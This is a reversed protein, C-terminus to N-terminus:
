LQVEVADAFCTPQEARKFEHTDINYLGPRGWVGGASVCDQKSVAGGQKVEGGPNQIFTKNFIPEGASVFSFPGVVSPTTDDQNRVFGISKSDYWSLATEDPAIENIGEGTEGGDGCGMGAILDPHKNVDVDIICLPVLEEMRMLDCKGANRVKFKVVESYDFHARVQADHMWGGYLYARDENYPEDKYIGELEDATPTSGNLHALEPLSANRVFLDFSELTGKAEEETYLTEEPLTGADVQAKVWDKTILQPLEDNACMHSMDYRPRYVKIRDWNQEVCRMADPDLCNEAVTGDHPYGNPYHPSYIRRKTRVRWRDTNGCSDLNKGWNYESVELFHVDERYNTPDGFNDAVPQNDGKMAKEVFAMHRRYRHGNTANDSTEDWIILDGPRAESLGAYIPIVEADPAAGNGLSERYDDGDRWEPDHAHQGTKDWLRAGADGPYTEWLIRGSEPVFAINADADMQMRLGFHPGADGRWRLPFFETIDEVGWGVSKNDGNEDKTYSYSLYKSNFLTGAQKMGWSEDSGVIFTKDYDCMCNLGFWKICRAQYTMMEYWGGIDCGRPGVIATQARPNIFDDPDPAGLTFNPLEPQIFARRIAEKSKEFLIHERVKTQPSSYMHSQPIFSSRDIGEPLYINKDNYKTVSLGFKFERDQVLNNSDDNPDDYNYLYEPAVHESLVANGNVDMVDPYSQLKSAPLPSMPEMFPAEIDRTQASFVLDEHKHGAGSGSEYRVPLHSLINPEEAYWRLNIVDDRSYEEDVVNECMAAPPAPVPAKPTSVLSFAPAINNSVDRTLVPCAKARAQYYCQLWKKYPGYGKCFTVPQFVFSGTVLVHQECTCFDERCASTAWRDRPCNCWFGFKADPDCVTKGDEQVENGDEDLLPQICEPDGGDVKVEKLWFPAIDGPKTCDDGILLHFAMGKYDCDGGFICKVLKVLFKVGHIAICTGDVYNESMGDGGFSTAAQMLKDLFKSIRRKARKALEAPSLFDEAKYEKGFKDYLVVDSLRKVDSETMPNPCVYDPSGQCIFQGSDNKKFLSQPELDHLAEAVTVIAQSTGTYTSISEITEVYYPAEALNNVNPDNEDQHYSVAAPNSVEYIIVDQGEPPTPFASLGPNDAIDLPVGFNPTNPTINQFLIDGRTEFFIFNEPEGQPQGAAYSDHEPHVFYGDEQGPFLSKIIDNIDGLAQIYPELHSEIESGISNGFNKPVCARPTENIEKDDHAQKFPGTCEIFARLFEYDFRPLRWSIIKPDKYKKGYMGKWNHCRSDQNVLFTSLSNSQWKWKKPRWVKMLEEGTSSFMEITQTTQYQDEYYLPNGDPDTAQEWEAVVYKGDRRWKGRHNFAGCGNRIREVRYYNLLIKKDKVTEPKNQKAHKVPEMYPPMVPSIAKENDRGEMFPNFPVEFDCYNPRSFILKKQTFDLFISVPNLTLTFFNPISQYWYGVNLNDVYEDDWPKYYDFEFGLFKGIEGKSPDFGFIQASIAVVKAKFDNGETDGDKAENLINSSLLEQVKDALQQVADSADGALDMLDIDARQGNTDQGIWYPSSYHFCNRAPWSPDVWDTQGGLLADKFDGFDFSISGGSNFGQFLHALIVPYGTRDSFDFVPDSDSISSSNNGGIKKDLKISPYMAADGGATAAKLIWGDTLTHQASEKDVEKKYPYTLWDQYEEASAGDGLLIHELANYTLLKPIFTVKSRSDEIDTTLWSVGSSFDISIGLSDVASSAANLLPSLLDEIFTNVNSGFIDELSMSTNEGFGVSTDTIGHVISGIRKHGYHEDCGLRQKEHWADDNLYGGPADFETPWKTQMDIFPCGRKSFDLKGGPTGDGGIRPLNAIVESGLVGDNFSTSDGRALAKKCIDTSSKKDTDKMGKAADWGAFQMRAWDTLESRMPRQVTDYGSEKAAMGMPKTAERDSYSAYQATWYCHSLGLTPHAGPLIVEGCDARHSFGEVYNKLCLRRKEKIGINQVRTTMEDILEEPTREINEPPRGESAAEADEEIQKEVTKEAEKYYYGDDILGYVDYPDYPTEKPMIAAAGDTTVNGPLPVVANSTIERSTHWAELTRKTAPANDDYLEQIDYPNSRSIVQNLFGYEGLYIVSSLDPEAGDGFPISNEFEDPRIFHNGSYSHLLVPLHHERQMIAMPLYLDEKSIAIFDPFNQKFYCQEKENYVLKNSAYTGYEESFYGNCVNDMDDILDNRLCQIFSNPQETLADVVSLSYRAGESYIDSAGAIAYAEGLDQICLPNLVLVSEDPVKVTDIFYEQNTASEPQTDDYHPNTTKVEKDVVWREDVNYCGTKSLFNDFITDEFVGDGCNGRWHGNWEALADNRDDTIHNAGDSLMQDSPEPLDTPDIDDMDPFVMEGCTPGSPDAPDAPLNPNYICGKAPLQANYQPHGSLDHSAYVGADTLTEYCLPCTFDDEMVPMCGDINVCEFIRATNNKFRPPPALNNCQKKNGPLDSQVIRCCQGDASCASRCNTMVAQNDLAEFYLSTTGQYKRVFNGPTHEGYSGANNDCYGVIHTENGIVPNPVAVNVGNNALGELDDFYGFIGHSPTANEFWQCDNCSQAWLSSGLLMMALLLIRARM